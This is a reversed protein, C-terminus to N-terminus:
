IDFKLTVGMTRPNGNRGVFQSPSVNFAVPIYNEDFVNKVWGELSWREGRLSLRFNTLIYHNQSKSNINDYFMEGVGVVEVRNYVQISNATHFQNQLAFNWTIEPVNPLNKGRGDRNACPEM